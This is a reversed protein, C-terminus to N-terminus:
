QFQIIRTQRFSHMTPTQIIDLESALSYFIVKKNDFNRESSLLYYGHVRLIQKLVTISRKESMDELYVRGKCPIYAEELVDKLEKMKNVTDLEVLDGKCFSRQDTLSTIGFCKLLAL